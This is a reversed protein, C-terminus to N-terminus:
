SSAEFGARQAEVCYFKDDSIRNAKYRRWAERGILELSIPWGSRMYRRGLLKEPRKGVKGRVVEVVKGHDLANNPHLGPLLFLLAHWGALIRKSPLSRLEHRGLKALQELEEVAESRSAFAFPTTIQNKFGSQIFKKAALGVAEGILPPVANGILRFAHTRASPFIFWDPFSQIRAAERPTISRNQTPHIFMLGDKSLHAVITSCAQKRSQRTYRDTFSSKDYPFEFKVGRVRM